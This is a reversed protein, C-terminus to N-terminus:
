THQKTVLTTLIIGNDSHRKRGKRCQRQMPSFRSFPSNVCHIYIYVKTKDSLLLLTLGDASTRTTIGDLFFVCRLSCRNCTTGHGNRIMLDASRLDGHNRSPEGTEGIRAVMARLPGTSASFSPAHSVFLAHSRPVSQQKNYSRYFFFFFNM